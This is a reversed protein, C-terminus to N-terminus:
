VIPLELLLFRASFSSASAAESGWSVLGLFIFVESSLAVFILVLDLDLVGTSVVVRSGVGAGTSAAGAVVGGALTSPAAEVAAALPPDSSGVSPLQFQDRLGVM